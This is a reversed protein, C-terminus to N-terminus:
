KDFIALVMNHHSDGDSLIITSMSLIKKGEAVKGDVDSLMADLDEKTEVKFASIEQKPKPKNKKGRVIRYREKWSKESDWGIPRGAYKKPLKPHDIFFAPGVNIAEPLCYEVYVCPIYCLPNSGYKDVFVVTGIQKGSKKDKQYIKDGVRM